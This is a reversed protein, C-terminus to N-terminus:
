LKVIWRNEPIRSRMFWWKFFRCNLVVELDKCFIIMSKFFTNMADLTYVTLGWRCGCSQEMTGEDVYHIPPLIDRTMYATFEIFVQRLYEKYAFSKGHLNNDLHYVKPALYLSYPLHECQIAALDGHSICQWRATSPRANVHIFLVGNLNVLEPKKQKLTQQVRELHQSYLGVIIPHSTSLLEYHMIQRSHCCIFLM